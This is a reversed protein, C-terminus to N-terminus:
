LYSGCIQKLPKKREPQKQEQILIDINISV